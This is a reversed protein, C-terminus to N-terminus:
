RRLAGEIQIRVAEVAGRQPSDPNVRLFVAARELAEEYRRQRTYLNLLTLHADYLERDLDLADLLSAEAGEYDGTEYLALGLYFYSEGVLPDLRLAAAFLDVANQYSAAASADDGESELAQGAQYRLTGLHVLPRPDNRNLRRARELPVEADPYRGAKLYEVGLKNLAEYYDPALEVAREFHGAAEARGAELEAMGLEYAAVAEPPIEALLQQVDVAPPGGGDPTPEPPVPELSLILGGFNCAVQRADLRERHPLFGDLEVVLYWVRGGDLDINLNRFTFRGTGDTYAFDQVGGGEPEVRVEIFPPAASRVIVRGDLVFPPQRLRCDADGPNVPAAGPPFQAMAALPMVALLFVGPIRIFAQRLSRKREPVSM